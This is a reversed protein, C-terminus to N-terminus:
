KREVWLQMQIAFGAAAATPALDTLGGGAITGDNVVAQSLNGSRDTLYFTSLSQQRESLIVTNTDDRLVNFMHTVGDTEFQLRKLPLPQEAKLGLVRAFGMNLKADDGEALARQVVAALAPTSETKKKCGLLGSLTVVAILFAFTKIITRGTKNFAVRGTRAEGTLAGAKREIHHHSKM